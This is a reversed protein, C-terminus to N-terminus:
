HSAVQHVHSNVFSMLFSEWTLSYCHYINATVYLQRWVELNREFYTPPHPMSSTENGTAYSPELGHIQPTPSSEDNAQSNKNLADRWREVAADQQSLWRRFCAQENGEVEAKTMEYRWKPRKPISLEIAVDGASPKVWDANLVNTDQPIPRVVPLTTALRRTQDLFEGDLKVFASQLKRATKSAQESIQRAQLTHGPAPDRRYKKRRGPSLVSSKSPLNEPVDGRKIARKLQLQAKRQKGSPGM